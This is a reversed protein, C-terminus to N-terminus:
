VDQASNTNAVPAQADQDERAMSVQERLIWEEYIRIIEEERAMATQERAFTRDDERLAEIEAIPILREFHSRVRQQNHM